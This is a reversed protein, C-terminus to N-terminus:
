ADSARARWWAVTAELGEELTRPTWDVAHALRRTDPWLVEPEGPRTELSGVDVLDARGVLQALREVIERVTTADASGVNFAGGTHALALAAIADAADEVYVFSRRQLGATTAVREGRLLANVVSPVLRQPAERPGFPHYLRAWAFSVGAVRAWADATMFLAAKTAGYLSRPRLPADERTPGDFVDYELCTGIGVIRPCGAEHVAAFFRLSAGLEDVNVAADLYGSGPPLRWAAHVVVAPEVTRLADLVAAPDHYDGAFAVAEAGRRALAAVLPSGIFGRAGTVLVRTGGVV